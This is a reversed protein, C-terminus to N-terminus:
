EKGVVVAPEAVRTVECHEAPPTLDCEGAQQKGLEVDCKHAIDKECKKPMLLSKRVLGSLVASILFLMWMLACLTYYVMFWPSRMVTYPTLPMVVAILCLWWVMLVIDWAMDCTYTMCGPTNKNMCRANRARQRPCATYVLWTISFSLGAPLVCCAPLLLLAPPFV